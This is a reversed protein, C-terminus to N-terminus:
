VDVYGDNEIPSINYIDWVSQGVVKDQDWIDPDTNWYIPDLIKILPGFPKPPTPTFPKPLYNGPMGSGVPETRTVTVKPQGIYPTPNFGVLYLSGTYKTWRADELAKPITKPLPLNKADFAGGVHQTAYRTELIEGPLDVIDTM